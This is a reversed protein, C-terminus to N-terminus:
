MAKVFAANEPRQTTSKQTAFPGRYIFVPCYKEPMRTANGAGLPSRSARNNITLTYKLFFKL